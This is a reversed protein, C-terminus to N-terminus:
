KYADEFAFRSTAREFAFQSAATLAVLRYSVHSEYLLQALLWADASDHPAFFIDIGVHRSLDQTLMDPVHFAGTADRGIEAIEFSYSTLEPPFSGKHLYIFIRFASPDRDGTLLLTGDDFNENAVVRRNEAFAIALRRLDLRFARGDKVLIHPNIQLVPKWSRVLALKREDSQEPKYPVAFGEAAMFSSALTLVSLVSLLAIFVNMSLDSQAIELGAFVGGRRLKRARRSM